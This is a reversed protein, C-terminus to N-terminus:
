REGLIEWSKVIWGHPFRKEMKLLVHDAHGDKLGVVAEAYVTNHSIEQLANIRVQSVNKHFATTKYKNGYSKFFHLTVNQATKPRPTRGGCAVALTLCSFGLLFIKGFRAM